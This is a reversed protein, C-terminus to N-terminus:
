DPVSHGLRSRAPGGRTMALAAVVGPAAAIAGPTDGTLVAAVAALLAATRHPRCALAVMCLPPLGHALSLLAVREPDIGIRAYPPLSGTGPLLAGAISLLSGSTGLLARASVDFLVILGAVAAPLLAPVAAALGSLGLVTRALGNRSAWPRSRRRADPPGSM